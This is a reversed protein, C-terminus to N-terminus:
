ATVEFESMMSFDEHELNHCHFVYKGLYGSFKAAVTVEGGGPQVVVTDKWGYDSADQPEGNVNVIQFQVLHVHMPHPHNTPNVFKWHEVADLKPKPIQALRGPSDYGFGNLTWTLKNDILLRNLAITRQVSPAPLETWPALFDPIIANDKEKKTVRFQMVTLTRGTGNLNQLVCSQGIQMSSFDIILDIRESPAIELYNVGKPRQLLGGDTGIQYFPLGNDLHLKYIRSNSGNLLRFRYKRASVNFYPQIKGNVLLVDGQMGMQLAMDDLNYVFQGMSDFTRDQLLLPVEYPGRPLRLARERVDELFYNGALGMYVNHGTAGHQHDHYWMACGRQRNPYDYVRSEEHDIGDDPHGDSTPPVLGGHLHVAPMHMGATHGGGEPEPLMNTQTIRVPRNTTAKITPGPYLGNYGLINTPPLDRHCKALGAKMTINYVDRPGVKKPKLVPPIPLADVFSPLSPTAGMSMEHQAFGRRPTYFPAAGAALALKLFNRRSHM